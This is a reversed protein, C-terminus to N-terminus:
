VHKNGALSKGYALLTQELTQEWTISQTKKHGNKALFLCHKPNNLLTKIHTAIETSDKPNDILIAENASLHESFGCYNKNSVIVPLSYAMAELVVMAYTDSLTPHVLADAAPYLTNMDECVGMFHVNRTLQFGKVQDIFKEPSDNGAVILHINSDNIQHIAELLVGLGKNKYNNAIFLLTFNEESINLLTRQKNRSSVRVEPMSDVQIGPYAININQSIEPYSCLINKALFESVAIIQRNNKTCLQQKELWLYSLMRPSIATNLYRLFKKLGSIETYRSLICPVHLTQVNAHPIRAHAHIIDFKNETAQRVWRAFLLDNIYRPKDLRKPIIHFQIDKSQSTRIFQCYVHVKHQRALRETLEVCYREAGGIRTYNQIVVAIQLQQSNNLNM